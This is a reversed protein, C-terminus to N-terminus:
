GNNSATDFFTKTEHNYGYGLMQMQYLLINPQANDVLEAFRALLTEIHV